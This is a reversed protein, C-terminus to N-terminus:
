EGLNATGRIVPGRPADHELSYQWLNWFPSEDRLYAPVAEQLAESMLPVAPDQLSGQAAVTRVLLLLLPLCARALLWTAPPRRAM